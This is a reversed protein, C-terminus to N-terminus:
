RLGSSHVILVLIPIAIWSTFMAFILAWGFYEEFKGSTFRLGEWSSYLRLQSLPLVLLLAVWFGFAYGLQRWHGGTALVAVSGLAAPVVIFAAAAIPWDPREGSKVM